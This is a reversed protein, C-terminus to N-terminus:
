KLNEALIEKYYELDSENIKKNPNINCLFNYVERIALKYQSSKAMDNAINDIDADTLDLRKSPNVIAVNKGEQTKIEPYQRTKIVVLNM